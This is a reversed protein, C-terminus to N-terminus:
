ADGEGVDARLSLTATLLGCLMWFVAYTTLWGESDAEGGAAVVLITTVAAVHLLWGLFAAWVVRNVVAFILFATLFILLLASWGFFSWQWANYNHTWGGESSCSEDCRWGAIFLLGLVAPVVLGIYPLAFLVFGLAGPPSTGFRGGSSRDQSPVESPAAM